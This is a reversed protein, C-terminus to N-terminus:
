ASSELNKLIEQAWIVHQENDKINFEGADIKKQDVKPRKKEIEIAMWNQAMQERASEIFEKLKRVRYKKM